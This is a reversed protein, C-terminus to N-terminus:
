FRIALDIPALGAAGGIQSLAANGTV